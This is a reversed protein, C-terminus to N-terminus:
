FIMAGGGCKLDPRRRLATELLLAQRAFAVSGKMGDRSQFTYLPFPFPLRLRRALEAPHMLCFLAVFNHRVLKTNLRNPSPPGDYEVEIGKVQRAVGFEHEGWGGVDRNFRVSITRPEPLLGNTRYFFVPDTREFPTTSLNWRTAEAYFTDAEISEVNFTRLLGFLDYTKVRGTGTEMEDIVCCTFPSGGRFSRAEELIKKETKLLRGFHGFAQHMSFGFTQEYRHQLRERMGAYSERITPANLRNIISAAQVKGWQRAYHPFTTPPPFAKNIAQALTERNVELGTEDGLLPKEQEYGTFLREYVFAPVLAHAEFHEFRYTSGHRSYEDHRGLRGLRQLFSGADWSEFILFNIQFDVGVDITSTGVLLDTDYSARRTEDGTFGTNEGIVIGHKAELTAKLHQVLRKATGVSNVIIAGKAGPQHTKFFQLVSEEIQGEMWEEANAAYFHIDSGHLIRRWYGTPQRKQHRYTGTILKPALDAQNLYKLLLSDEDPTASLFLYSKDSVTGIMEQIFLIANLVAVIEPAQFIHFEDFVLLDFLDPLVGAVRDPADNRHTYFLQMVYHFIDPNTLVIEHNHVVNLLADARRRFSGEAMMRDLRQSYLRAFPLDSHWRQLAGELQRMQDRILENTPYMALLSTHEVFTRLQAALSKGDGTMAANIIVTTDPDRLACYTALQHCYPRLNNVLRGQLGANAIDDDTAQNSWVPPTRLLMPQEDQMYLVASM